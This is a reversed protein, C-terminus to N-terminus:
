KFRSQKQNGRGEQRCNEPEMQLGMALLKRSGRPTKKPLEQTGRSNGAPLKQSWQSDRTGDQEKSDAEPEMQVGPQCSGKSIIAEFELEM